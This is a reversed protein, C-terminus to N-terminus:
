FSTGAEFPNRSTNYHTAIRSTINFVQGQKLPIAVIAAVTNCATAFNFVQGQKLPIKETIIAIASDAFISVAIAPRAVRYPLVRLARYPIALGPLAARM